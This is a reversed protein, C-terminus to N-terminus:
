NEAGGGSLLLEEIQKLIAVKEAQSETRGKGGKKKSHLVQGTNVVKVEFNGTVIRDEKPVIDIKGAVSPQSSLFDRLGRYYRSYGVFLCLLRNAPPLGNVLKLYSVVVAHGMRGVISVEDM